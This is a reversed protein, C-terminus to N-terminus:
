PAFTAVASSIVSALTLATVSGGDSFLAVSDGM